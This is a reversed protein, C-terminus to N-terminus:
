QISVTVGPVSSNTGVTLVVDGTSAGPPVRLKVRFKGAVEGASGGAELVDAPIGNITASVPLVPTPLHGPDGAIQGDVGPPNTQGEGTAAVVIESGAAAPNDPSNMSGDANLIAGPGSGSADQTFIAPDSAVVDLNVVNSGQGLYTVQLSTSAAGVVAYPVIAEVQSSGTYLVVSPFGGINVGTGALSAAVHGGDATFNVQPDPGLATGAIVIIEGPVIATRPGGAGVSAGNYVATINPLPPSVVLSVSITQSSGPANLIVNASYTGVTLGAPNASISVAAPTAASTPSINLWPANAVSLTFNLRAGTSSVQISQAPPAPDGLRCAFAAGTSSLVLAPPVTVNVIVGIAQPSGGAGPATVTVTGSQLGSVGALQAPNVAVSLTAPTTTSSPTVVIWNASAAVSFAMPLSGTSVTIPQAAPAADGQSYNFQVSSNSLSLAASPNSVTFFVAVTLAAGSSTAVTVSGSYPASSAALSAPNATITLNAPATASSLSASLWAAGASISPRNLMVSSPGTISVTAAQPPGGSQGTLSVQNPAVGVGPQVNLNVTLVTAGVADGVSATITLRCVFPTSSPSLGAASATVTVVAPLPGGSSSVSLWGCGSGPPPITFAGGDGNITVSQQGSGGPSLNFTLANPTVSFSQTLATAAFALWVMLHRGCTRFSHM